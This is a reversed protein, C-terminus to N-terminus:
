CQAQGGARVAACRRRQVRHGRGPGTGVALALLGEKASEAIGTMSVTVQEPVAAEGLPGDPQARRGTTQYTNSVATPKASRCVGVGAGRKVRCGRGGLVPLRLLSEGHGGGTVV